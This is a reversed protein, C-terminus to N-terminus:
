HTYTHTYFPCLEVDPRKRTNQSPDRVSGPTQWNPWCGRPHGTEVEWDQLQLRGEMGSKKVPDPLDSSWDVNTCKIKILQVM